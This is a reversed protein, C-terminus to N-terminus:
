PPDDAEPVSPPPKAPPPRPAKRQQPPPSTPPRPVVGCWGGEATAAATAGPRRGVAVRGEKSHLRVPVGGFQYVMEQRVIRFVRKAASAPGGGATTVTRSPLAVDRGPPLLLALPSLPTPKPAPAAAAAAEADVDVDAAPPQPAVPLQSSASSRRCRRRCGLPRGARRRQLIREGTVATPTRTRAGPPPPDYPLLPLAVDGGGGGGAVSPAARRGALGLSKTGSSRGRKQRLNVCLTRDKAPYVDTIFREYSDRQSYHMSQPLLGCRITVQRLLDYEMFKM